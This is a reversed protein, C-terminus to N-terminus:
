PKIYLDQTGPIKRFAQDHINVMSLRVLPDLTLTAVQILLASLVTCPSRGKQRGLYLLTIISVVTGMVVPVVDARHENVKVNAPDDDHSGCLLWFTESMFAQM